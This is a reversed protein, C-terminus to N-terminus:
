NGHRDGQQQRAPKAEILDVKDEVTRPDVVGNLAHLIAQVLMPPDVDPRAYYNARATETGHQIFDRMLDADTPLVEAVAFRDVTGAHNCHECGPGQLRVKDLSGWTQLARFLRPALMSVNDPTLKISCRRCLRPLLRQAIVGRIVKHDCFVRRNLRVSDMLELRDVFLFPDTAHLTTLVRHGTVAAEFAAVAVEPGRLEGLLISKPAMRLAVRLLAAYAEGTEEDNRANTVPMQVGWAMPYEVPDEITVLRNQPARRASEQLVEFMATTKGSGTPGLWILVGTPAGMLRDIKELNSTSYGVLSMSGEPRQPAPLPKLQTSRDAGSYGSLYQLRLTMFEGGKAQPYCPGRVIRVSSLQTEPPFVEGAIQANQCELAKYSADRVTALGQYIARALGLGAEHTMQDLVRLGGNVEIQVMCHTGRMMLHVDSARYSAAACILREADKQTTMDVDVGDSGLRMGRALMKAVDEFSRPEVRLRLGNQANRAIWSLFITNSSYSHEVYALLSSVDVAVRDALGEPLAVIGAPRDLVEDHM